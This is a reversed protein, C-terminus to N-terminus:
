LLYYYLWGKKKQGSLYGHFGPTILLNMQAYCRFIVFRGVTFFRNHIEFSLERCCKKKGGKKGAIMNKMSKREYIQQQEKGM